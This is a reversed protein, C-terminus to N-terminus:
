QSFEAAYFYPFNGGLNNFVGKLNKTHAYLNSIDVYYVSIAEDNCKKQIQSYLAARKAPDSTAAAADILQDMEKNRYHSRNTGVEVNPSYYLARLLGDPDTGTDWWGQTHHKGALVAATYGSRSLAHIEVEIGVQALSAKMFAAKQLTVVDTAVSYHGIVLRKGGRERIGDAGVKWGAEDLLKQASKLDYPYMDCASPDFGFTTRTLPGCAPTGIGDWITQIMANKNIALQIARRVALEDLPPNEFNMILTEGVGPRAMQITVFKPDAKLRGFDLPPVAAIFDTEGTDLSAVRTAPELITKFIIKEIKSPGSMGLFKPGWQYDPNRVLVVQNDLVFSELKFPGTGVLETVGWNENGVRKLATPSVPNLYPNSVSDLFPAFSSKFKVKVEYDNIIQTESYPGMLIVGVQSKMAPDVIRDFSFKVAEANFPTGDHFKVDQRLKFTYETSDANVSWETALGPEFHGLEPQWVLPDTVHQTIRTAVTSPTVHPDLNAFTAEVGYILTTRPPSKPPVPTTTVQPTSAVIVTEKAIRTVEKEIVQAPPAACASIALSLLVVLAFIRSLREKSTAM